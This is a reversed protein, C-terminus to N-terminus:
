VRDSKFPDNYFYNPANNKTESPGGPPASELALSIDNDLKVRELIPSIYKTKETEMVRTNIM